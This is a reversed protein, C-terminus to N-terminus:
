VERQLVTEVALEMFPKTEAKKCHLLSCYLGPEKLLVTDKHLLFIDERQNLPPKVDGLRLKYKHPVLNKITKKSNKDAYGIAKYVDRSVLHEEGKVHM